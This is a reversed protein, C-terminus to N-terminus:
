IKLKTKSHFRWLLRLSIGLIVGREEVRRQKNGGWFYFLFFSKAKHVRPLWCFLSFHFLSGRRNEKKERKIRKRFGRQFGVKKERINFHGAGKVFLKFAKIAGSQPAKM